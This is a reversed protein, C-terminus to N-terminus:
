PALGWYGGSDQPSLVFVKWEALRLMFETSPLPRSLSNTNWNEYKSL